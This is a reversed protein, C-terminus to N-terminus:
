CALVDRYLERKLQSLFQSNHWLLTFEGNVLRCVDKLNCFKVLAQEGTGLGMYCDDIVTCEMAILPRIRLKLLKNKVPDFAPYEFCTGCRFGVRDAYGMTTDYSMGADDWARLTTPQEWRLYHMRGGWQSQEINEEACVQFLREAEKKILEPRNFTSYSPHLGIEHGRNYIRRLLKRIVPHEPTYDSDYMKDTQGCIFYFASKLGNEESLDMLWDFTNYPDIPHLQNRTALKVYPATAFARFDHRKLIDGIMMRGITSWPKFAYLSPSDVDHSLHTCFQHQKLSLHPWVREIIKGLINLWEDVIPRELYNNKFAHSSVAPFRSHSDLDTRGVEELRSLMWYTLGLIDYHVLAGKDVFEILPDSLARSSPAPLVDYIPACFGERSAKWVECKFDSFSQLFVDDLCDFSVLKNTGELGITLWNCESYQLKLPHGFREKIIIELWLLAQSSLKKM